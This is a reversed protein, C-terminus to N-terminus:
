RKLHLPRQVSVSVFLPLVVLVGAAAATLAIVGEAKEGSGCARACVGAGAWTGGTGLQVVLWNPVSPLASTCRLFFFHRLPTCRPAICSTRGRRVCAGLGKAM